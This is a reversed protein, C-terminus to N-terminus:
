FGKHNQLFELEHFTPIRDLVANRHPYRGFQDIIKKHEIEFKYNSELGKISFLKVAETHIIRSESHMYPMYAFARMELPIEQDLGSLVMEQALILALDDAAFAEPQNRHINRSFQDLVIIEALRGHATTRWSILEGQTAAKLVEGFKMKILDDTETDIKFWQAPKLEHFWFEIVNQAEM